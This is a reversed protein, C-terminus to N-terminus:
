KKYTGWPLQPPGYKAMVAAASMSSTVQGDVSLYERRMTTYNDVTCDRRTLSPRGDSYIVVSDDPHM